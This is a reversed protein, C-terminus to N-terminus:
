LHPSAFRFWAAVCWGGWSPCDTENLRISIAVSVSTTNEDKFTFGTYFNLGHTALQKQLKKV